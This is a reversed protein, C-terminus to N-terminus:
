FARRKLGVMVFLLNFGVHVLSCLALAILVVQWPPLWVVALALLCGAVSDVQDLTTFIWYRRGTAQEGPPIDFQRKLLSNPLEALVFGLGLLAGCAWANVSGYDFLELAPIRMWQQLAMGASSVAVMVVLGRWTKNDGFLRRGRFTQGFDLPSTLGSLVKTRIVAIHIAAAVMVPLALWLIQASLWLLNSVFTWM